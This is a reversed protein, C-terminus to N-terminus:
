TQGDGIYNTTLFLTIGAGLRKAEIIYFAARFVRIKQIVLRGDQPVGSNHSFFTISMLICM